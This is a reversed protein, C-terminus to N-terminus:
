RDDRTGKVGDMRSAKARETTAIAYMAGSENVLATSIISVELIEGDKTIRRTLYPEIVEARALQRLTELAGERLGEPIRDQVKM